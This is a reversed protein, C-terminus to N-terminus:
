VLGENIIIGHAEDLESEPVLIEYCGYKEESSGNIARVKVLLGKAMILEKIKEATELSQSVFAVMWM